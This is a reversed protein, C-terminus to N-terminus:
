ITGWYYRAVKGDDQISIRRFCLGQFGQFM